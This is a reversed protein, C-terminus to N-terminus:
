TTFKHVKGNGYLEATSIGFGRYVPSHSATNCWSAVSWASAYQVFSTPSIQWSIVASMWVISATVSFPPPWHEFVQDSFNPDWASTNSQIILTCVFSMFTTRSSTSIILKIQPVDSSALHGHTKSWQWTWCEAALFNTKFVCSTYHITKKKSTM